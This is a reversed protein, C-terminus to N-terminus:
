SCEAAAAPRGEGFGERVMESALALSCCDSVASAPLIAASASSAALAVVAEVEPAEREDAESESFAKPNKPPRRLPAVEALLTHRPGSANGSRHM